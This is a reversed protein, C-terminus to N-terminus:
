NLQIKKKHVLNQQWQGLARETDYHVHEKLVKYIIRLLMHDCAVVVRM